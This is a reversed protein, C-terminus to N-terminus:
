APGRADYAAVEEMRFRACQGFEPPLVIVPFDQDLTHTLDIVRVRGAALAAAIDGLVTM